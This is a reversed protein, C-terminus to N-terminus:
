SERSVEALCGQMERFQIQRQKPTAFAHSKRFVGDERVFIMDVQALANDLPRYNLGYMDYVVFGFQKMRCVVDFLQPGGVM